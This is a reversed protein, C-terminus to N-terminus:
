CIQFGNLTKNAKSYKYFLYSTKKIFLTSRNDHISKKKQKYYKNTNSFYTLVHIYRKGLGCNCARAGLVYGNFNCKLFKNEVM